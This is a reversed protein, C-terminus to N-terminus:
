LTTLPNKDVHFDAHLKLPIRVEIQRVHVGDLELLTRDPLGWWVPRNRRWIVMLERPAGTDPDHKGGFFQIHDGKRVVDRALPPQEDSAM